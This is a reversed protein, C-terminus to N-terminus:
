ACGEARLEARGEARGESREQERVKARIEDEVTLLKMTSYSPAAKDEQSSLNARVGRRVPGVGRLTDLEGNISTKDTM